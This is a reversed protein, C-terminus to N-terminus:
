ADSPGQTSRLRRDRHVTHPHFRWQILPQSPRRRIDNVCRNVYGGRGVMPVALWGPMPPHELGRADKLGSFNKFQPHSNIEHETTRVPLRNNVVLGWIGDGTPMVDYTDYKEYKESFSHTHIAAKFDGDPVYSIASQHAGVVLRAQLALVHLADEFTETAHADLAAQEIRVIAARREGPESSPRTKLSALERDREALEATLREVEHQLDLQQTSM